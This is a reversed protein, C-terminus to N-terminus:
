STPAVRFGYSLGQVGFGTAPGLCPTVDSRADADVDPMATTPAALTPASVTVQCIIAKPKPNPAQPNCACNISCPKRFCQKCHGNWPKRCLGQLTPSLSRRHCGTPHLIHVESGRFGSDRFRSLRSFMKFVSLVILVWTMM